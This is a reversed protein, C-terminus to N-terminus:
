APPRVEIQRACHVCAPLLSHRVKGCGECKEFVRTGCAPCVYAEEEAADGEPLAALKKLSSRTWRLYKMPGRRIPYSCVPCLFREYAERYQKLLSELKPHAMSRLLLILVRAVIAIAVLILVYKFYRRPFHEHMVAGVKVVIALAFGYILPAYISYRKKLFLWGALLLLPTLFALKLAALRLQHRSNLRSWEEQVAPRKGEVQKQAARLNAQLTVLEDSFGAIQDNMEQYKAQNALFLRQSEALAESEQQAPKLGQQLKMRQSELLQNMTRESNGTSDRLVSQRQRRSDVERNVREIEEQLSKVREVLQQDIIGKEVEAYNPGPWTGIDRVVFGLLWYVLLGFLVSFVIVLMRHTWPGKQKATTKM